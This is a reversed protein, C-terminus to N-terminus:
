DVPGLALYDPEHVTRRRHPVVLVRVALMLPVKHRALMKAAEQRGVLPLLIIAADILMATTANLRPIM